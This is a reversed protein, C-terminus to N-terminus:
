SVAENDLRVSDSEPKQVSIETSLKEVQENTPLLIFVLFISFFITLLKFCILHSFNSLNQETIGFVGCWIGGIFNGAWDTSVTIAATILAFM